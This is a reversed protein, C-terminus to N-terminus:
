GLDSVSDLILDPELGSRALAQQTFKGTRVLATRCGAESAGVGDGELLTGDVDLLVGRVGEVWAM